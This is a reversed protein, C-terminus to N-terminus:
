QPCAFATVERGPADAIATIAGQPIFGLATVNIYAVNSPAAAGTSIVINGHTSISATGGTPNIGLTASATLLEIFIGYRTVGAPAAPVLVTSGAGIVKSYDASSFTCAAPLQTAWSGKAADAAIPMLIAAFIAARLLKM